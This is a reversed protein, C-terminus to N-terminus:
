SAAYKYALIANFSAGKSGLPEELAALVEDSDVGTMTETDNALM